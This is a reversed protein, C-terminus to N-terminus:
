FPIDDDFDPLVSEEEELNRDLNRDLLYLVKANAVIKCIGRELLANLVTEPSVGKWNQARSVTRIAKLLSSQKTPRMEGSLLRIEVFADVIKNVDLGAWSIGDESNNKNPRHAGNLREVKRESDHLMNVVHDLDSDASLIIFETEKPMESVLRGAWFALGFDAANKGGKKMGVLELKGDHIATALSTVLGLPVKPELGGYCVIIRIFGALMMPLNDIEKPCNDLDILMVRPPTPVNQEM